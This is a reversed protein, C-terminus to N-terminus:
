CADLYPSFDNFAKMYKKGKETLKRKYTRETEDVDILGLTELDKLINKVSVPNGVGLQRVSLNSEQGLKNLIDRRLTISQKPCTM